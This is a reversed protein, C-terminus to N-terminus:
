PMIASQADEAEERICSDCVSDTKGELSYGLEVLLEEERTMPEPWTSGCRCCLRNIPERVPYVSMGQRENQAPSPKTKSLNPREGPSANRTSKSKGKKPSM